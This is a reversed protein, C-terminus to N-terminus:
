LKIIEIIEGAKKEKEKIYILCNSNRNSTIIGNGSKTQVLDVYQVFGEVYYRGRLFRIKEEKSLINNKLIAKEKVIEVREKGSFKNLIPVVMLEFTTLAATPNGSLSVIACNKIKSFAMASGPKINVKWFLINDEYNLSEIMLDRDGVSVGGTTIILDYNISLEKILKRIDLSDDKIHSIYGVDFDLEKLRALISYKNANYIKGEDLNLSNLDVVEDGTTILAIKPKKYVKIKSIGCSALIGVDGYDIIKNKNLILQGKFIDEGKPCINEGISIDKNLSILKDELIVDEKKIVANAGKPIKAGTMIKIAEGLSLSILPNDGAFITHVVELRRGKDKIDIAYGDMASKDFPPINISSYIEEFSTRGLAELLDVEEYSLNKINEDIIKLGRELSVLHEM